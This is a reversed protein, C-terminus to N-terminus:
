PCASKGISLLSGDAVRWVRVDVGDTAAIMASDPSFFLEWVPGQMGELVRIVGSGDPTALFVKNSDDVDSYALYQGDPSYAVAMSNKVEDWVLQSSAVEWVYIGTALDTAVYRGDPSFVADSTDYGGTGGFESVVEGSALDWLLVPGDSPITAVQAGDPTIGIGLIEGGAQTSPLPGGQATDWVRVWGDHSVSLLRDGSPSFRLDYVTDPHASLTFRVAHDALGILQVTGDEFSWALTTGDPSLAAAYIMQASSLFDQEEGTQLSIMQVGQSTRIALHTSDPSFAFPLLERPTFCLPEGAPELETPAPEHTPPVEAPTASAPPASSQPSCSALFIILIWLLPLLRTNPM